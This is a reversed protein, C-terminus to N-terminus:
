GPVLEVRGVCYATLVSATLEALAILLGAAVGIATARAPPWASRWAVLATVAMAVPLTFALSWWWVDRYLWALWAPDPIRACPDGGSPRPVLALPVSILGLAVYWSVTQRTAGRVAAMNAVVGSYAGGRSTAGAM